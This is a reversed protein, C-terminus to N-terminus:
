LTGPTRLMAGSEEDVCEVMLLWCAGFTGAGRPVDPYRLLQPSRCQLPLGHHRGVRICHLARGNSSRCVYAPMPEARMRPERSIVHPQAAVRDRARHWDPVASILGSWRRTEDM